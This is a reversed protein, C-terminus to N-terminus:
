TRCTIGYIHCTYCPQWALKVPRFGDALTDGMKANPINILLPCPYVGDDTVMRCSNCQLKQEEGPILDGEHLQEEETYGRTRQEERGILFPVLFKLRPKDLGLGRVFEMFASREKPLGMEPRVETVTIVPNVGYTTLCKIGAIIREFTGKGRVKDNEEATYGDLSVRLDFSYPADLFSEGLWAAMEDDILIGNTLITLPGQALTMTILERINPHLFPEGGTFYYERVGRKYAEDLTTRVQEVTMMEHQHNKPGCSIFCHLCAINCLTGTVQLWLTDLAELELEPPNPSMPAQIVNLSHRIDTRSM